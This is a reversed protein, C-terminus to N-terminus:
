FLWKLHVMLLTPLTPVWYELFKGGISRPLYSLPHDLVQEARALVRTRIGLVETAFSSVFVSAQLRLALSASVPVKPAPSAVPRAVNTFGLNLKLPKQRLPFIPLHSLFACQSRAEVQVYVHIHM